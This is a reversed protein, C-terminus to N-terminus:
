DKWRVFHAAQWSDSGFPCLPFISKDRLRRVLCTKLRTAQWLMSPQRPKLTAPSKASAVFSKAKQILDDLSKAEPVLSLKRDQM